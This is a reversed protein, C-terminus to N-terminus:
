TLKSFKSGLTDNDSKHKITIVQAKSRRISELPDLIFAPLETLSCGHDPHVIIITQVLISLPLSPSFHGFEPYCKTISCIPGVSPKSKPYSLFFPTLSSAVYNSRLWLFSNGKVSTSFANYPTRHAM